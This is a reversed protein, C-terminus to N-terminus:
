HAILDNNDLLLQGTTSLPSSAMNSHKNEATTNRSIRNSAASSSSTLAPVSCSTMLLFQLMVLIVQYRDCTNDTCAAACRGIVQDVQDIARPADAHRIKVRGFLPQDVDCALKVDTWVVCLYYWGFRTRPPINFTKIISYDVSSKVM